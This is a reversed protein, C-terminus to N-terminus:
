TPVSLPPTHFVVSPPALQVGNVSKTDTREFLGGLISIEGEKLRIDHEIKRQSIIPEQLGGITSYGTVSSVEVAIKLSIERNPHIRPTVDVNVGVDIYQFQTNVLPSVASTAATSGSSFSGTAVPVRDGIKLKAPQGDVSRIEPNQIIQTSTDTLLATLSAGPM